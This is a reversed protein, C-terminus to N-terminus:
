LDLEMWEGSISVGGETPLARVDMWSQHGNACSVPWPPPGLRPPDDALAEPPLEVKLLEGCTPCKPTLMLRPTTMGAPDGRGEGDTAEQLCDVVRLGRGGRKQRVMLGLQEIM